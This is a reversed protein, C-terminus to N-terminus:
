HETKTTRPIAAMATGCTFVVDFGLPYRSVIKTRTNWFSRSINNPSLFRRDEIGPGTLCIETGAELSDVQIILMASAEPRDAKGQRFTDLDPMRAPTTILAFDSQEARCTRCLTHFSLWALAEPHGALDTWLRTDVDLLSLCIAASARNLPPPPCLGMPLTLIKGPQSLADLVSRFAAQSDFVSDSFGPLLPSSSFVNEQPM